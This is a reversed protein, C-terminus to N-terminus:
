TLMFSRELTATFCQAERSSSEPMRGPYDGGLITSRRPILDVQRVLRGLTAGADIAARFIEEHGIFTLDVGGATRGDYVECAHREGDLEVELKTLRRALSRKTPDIGGYLPSVVTVQHDLGKLAKSLVAAVEALDSDGGSYPAVEPTVVLIEM